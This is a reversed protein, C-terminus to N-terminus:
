KMYHAMAILARTESILLVNFFLLSLDKM